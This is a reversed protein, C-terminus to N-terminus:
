KNQNKIECNCKNCCQWEYKVDYKYTYPYDERPLDEKSYIAVGGGWNAYKDIPYEKGSKGVYHTAVEKTYKYFQCQM